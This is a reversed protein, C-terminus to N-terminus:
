IEYIIKKWFIMEKKVSVPLSENYLKKLQKPLAYIREKNNLNIYKYYDLNFYILGPNDKTYKLSKTLLWNVSEGETDKNKNEILIWSM